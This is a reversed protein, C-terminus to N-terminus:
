YLVYVHVYRCVCVLTLLSIIVCYLVCGFQPTSGLACVFDLLLRSPDFTYHAPSVGALARALVVTRKGGDVTNSLVRVSPAVASGAEHNGLSHETVAGTDGDVVIAYAGAMVQSGLGVGFWNGDAPGTLSITAGASASVSLALTVLSEKSGAITDV